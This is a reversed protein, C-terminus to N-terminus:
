RPEQHVLRGRRVAGAAHQVAHGPHLRRDPQRTLFSAVMGIALMALGILWYGFYTGVFLGVDPDGLAGPSFSSSQSRRSCCRCPSSRWRPWTSAWCSTSTARRLHDAATRRDGAAARRGLHEDHHGSHLGAHHVAALPEASRPNALNSSLSSTRGSRPWRCELCVFVCIFVYGTPNTFYSVFNRKFISKVYM